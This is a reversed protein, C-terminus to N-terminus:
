ASAMDARFLFYPPSRRHSLKPMAGWFGRVNGLDLAFRDFKSKCPATIIAAM